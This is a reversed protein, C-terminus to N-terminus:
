TGFDLSANLDGLVDVQLLTVISVDTAVGVIRCTCDNQRAVYSRRMREHM